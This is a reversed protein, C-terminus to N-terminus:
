GTLSGNGTGAPFGHLRSGLRPPVRDVRRIVACRTTSAADPSVVSTTAPDSRRQGHEDALPERERYAMVQEARGPGNLAGVEPGLTM